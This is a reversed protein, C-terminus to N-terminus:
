KFFCKALFFLVSTLFLKITLLLQTISFVPLFNWLVANTQKEDGRLHLLIKRPNQLISGKRSIRVDSQEESHCLERFLWFKSAILGWLYVTDQTPKIIHLGEPLNGRQARLSMLYKTRFLICERFLWFKSSIIIARLVALIKISNSGVLVCYRAHTKYYPTGEPLNERRKAGRFSM